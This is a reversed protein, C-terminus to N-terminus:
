TCQQSEEAKKRYLKISAIHDLRRKVLMYGLLLFFLPHTVESIRDEFLGSPAFAMVFALFLVCLLTLCLQAFRLSREDRLLADDRTIIKEEKCNM